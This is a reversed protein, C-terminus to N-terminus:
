PQITIGADKLHQEILWRASNNVKTKGGVESEFEYLLVEFRQAKDIPNGRLEQPLDLAGSTGWSKAIQLMRSPNTVEGSTRPDTTLVFVIVRYAGKPLQVTTLRRIVGLSALKVETAWRGGGALAQGSQDDLQEIHPIVAFGGPASYFGWTPFHGGRLLAILRDAVQGWTTYPAESGLQSMALLRRDSPAPPPWPFFEELVTKPAPAAQPFVEADSATPPAISPVTPAFEPRLARNGAASAPARAITVEHGNAAAPGNKAPAKSMEAPGAAIPPRAGDRYERATSAGGGFGNKRAKKMKKHHKVAKQATRSQEAARKALLLCSESIGSARSVADAQVRPLAALVAVRDRWLVALRSSVTDADAGSTKALRGCLTDLEHDIRTLSSAPQAAAAFPAVAFLAAVIIARLGLM